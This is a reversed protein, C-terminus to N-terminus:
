FYLLKLSHGVCKEPTRFTKWSLGLEGGGRKTVARGPLLTTSSKTNTYIHKHMGTPQTYTHLKKAKINM